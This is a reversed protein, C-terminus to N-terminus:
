AVCIKSRIYMGITELLSFSEPLFEQCINKKQSSRRGKKGVGKKGRRKKNYKKKKYKKYNKKQKYKQRKKKLSKYHRKDNKRPKKLM